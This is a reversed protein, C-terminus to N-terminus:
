DDLRSDPCEEDSELCESTVISIMGWTGLLVFVAATVSLISVTWVM